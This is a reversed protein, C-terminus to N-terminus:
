HLAIALGLIALNSERHDNGTQPLQETSKKATPTVPQSASPAPKVPTNAKDPTAPVDPTDPTDPKDPTTYVVPTNETPKDPTVPQVAHKM